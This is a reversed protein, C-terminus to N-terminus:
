GQFVMGLGKGRTPQIRTQRTNRKENVKKGPPPPLNSFHLGSRLEGGKRSPNATVIDSERQWQGRRPEAPGSTRPRSGCTGVAKSRFGSSRLGSIAGTRRMHDSRRRRTRTTGSCGSRARATDRPAAEELARRGSGTENANKKETERREGRVPHRVVVIAFASGLLGLQLGRKPHFSRLTTPRYHRPRLIGRLM